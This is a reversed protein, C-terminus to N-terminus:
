VISGTVVVGVNVGVDEGGVGSGVGEGEGVGSGVEESVGVGEGEGVGSGVEENVGVGEGDGVGSGVEENVGVGEGDGVGSGVEESIGDNGTPIESLPPSSGGSM